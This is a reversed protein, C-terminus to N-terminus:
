AGFLRRFGGSIRSLFGEGADGKEEVFGTAAVPAIACAGGGAFARAAMEVDHRLSQAAEDGASEGQFRRRAEPSEALRRHRKIASDVVLRLFGPKFPKPVFRYVQGQNILDMVVRADQVGSFVVAVVEPHKQKMLRILRTVDVKGVRVDSIVVSAPSEDLAQVAEALNSAHRMRVTNGLVELMEQRTGEDDDILLLSEGERMAVMAPWHRAAAGARAPLADPPEAGETGPPPVPAVAEPPIAPSQRAVEAAEAILRPLERIDWPKTVFRYVESENVSRVMADLDSYGTLLIRMARPAARSVDRLFEVGTVGPMRQDSVVVDFDHQQVLRLGDAATTATHVEFDKRLLWQLARVVHPEDDVCLVRGKHASM